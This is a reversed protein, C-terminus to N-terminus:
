IKDAMLFEMGEKTSARGGACKCKKHSKMELRGEKTGPEGDVGGSRWNNPASIASKM